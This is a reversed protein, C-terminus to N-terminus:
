HYSKPNFCVLDCTLKLKNLVLNNSYEQILYGPFVFVLNGVSCEPLTIRKLGLINLYTRTLKNNYNLIYIYIYNKKQTHKRM